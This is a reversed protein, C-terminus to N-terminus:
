SDFSIKADGTIVPNKEQNTVFIQYIAETENNSKLEADVKVVDGPFVPARFRVKLKGSSLWTEGFAGTMAESVLGLILMGHAIPRGYYTSKAFQEDLHLPNFDGSANAYKIIQEQSVKRLVPKLKNPITM